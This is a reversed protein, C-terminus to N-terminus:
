GAGDMRAAAEALHRQEEHRRHQDDDYSQGDQVTAADARPSAKLPIQDAVKSLPHRQNEYREKLWDPLKVHGRVLTGDDVYYTVPKDLKLWEGNRYAEFVTEAARGHVTHRWVADAYTFRVGDGRAAVMEPILGGGGTIGTGRYPAGQHEDKVHPPLDDWGLKGADVPTKLAAIDDAHPRFRVMAIGDKGVHQYPQVMGHNGLWGPLDRLDDIKQFPVHQAYTLQLDDRVGGATHSVLDGDRALFGSLTGDKQVKALMETGNVPFVKVMSTQEDVGFPDSNVRHVVPAVTSPDFNPDHVGPLKAYERVLKDAGEPTLSPGFRDLLEQRATVADFRPNRIAVVVENGHRDRGTVHGIVDSGASRGPDGSRDLMQDVRNTAAAHRRTLGNLESERADRLAQVHSGLKASEQRAQSIVAVADKPRGAAKLEDHTARADSLLKTRHAEAETIQQSLRVLRPSNQEAARDAAVTSAHTLRTFEAARDTPVAQRPVSAPDGGTRLKWRDVLDSVKSAGPLHEALGGVKEGLGLHSSLYRADFGMWRGKGAWEAGRAVAGLLGEREALAAIGAKGPTPMAVQTVNGLIYGSRTGWGGPLGAGSFSNLGQKVVTYPSVANGFRVLGRIGSAKGAALAAVSVVPLGLAVSVRGLGVWAPGLVHAGFDWHSKGTAPDWQYNLGGLRTVAGFGDAFSKTLGVGIKDLLPAKDLWTKGFPNNGLGLDDEWRLVPTGAGPMESGLQGPQHQVPPIVSGAMDSNTHSSIIGVCDSEATSLQKQCQDLEAMIASYEHHMKGNDVTVADGKMHGAHNDTYHEPQGDPGYVPSAAMRWTPRAAAEANFKQARGLLSELKPKLVLTTAGFDTLAQGVAAVSNGVQDTKTQVPNISSVLQATEPAFYCGSLRKWRSVLAEGVTGIQTCSTMMRDGAAIMGAPDGCSKIRDRIPQTPIAESV